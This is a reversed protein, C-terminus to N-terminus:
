GAGVICGVQGFPYAHWNLCHGRLLFLRPFQLACTILRRAHAAIAHALPSVQM